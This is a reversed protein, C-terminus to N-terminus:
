VGSEDDFLLGSPAIHDGVSGSDTEIVGLTIKM